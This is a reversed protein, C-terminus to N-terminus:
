FLPAAPLPAFPAFYGGVGAQSPKIYYPTVILLADARAKEAGATIELTEALSQSGTAAVVPIRGSAAKVATEVLRVREDATLSSPEGTTGTVVIGHSGEEAQREVLEAFKGYDVGGNRFPTVLPPSSGRWFNPKLNVM